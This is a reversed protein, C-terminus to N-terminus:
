AESSESESITAQLSKIALDLNFANYQECCPWYLGNTM